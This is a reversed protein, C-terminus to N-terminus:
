QSNAIAQEHAAVREKFQSSEFMQRVAENGTLRMSMCKSQIRMRNLENQHTKVGELQERIAFRMDEIQNEM